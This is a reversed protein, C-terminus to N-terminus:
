IYNLFRDRGRFPIYLIPVTSLTGIFELQSFGVLTSYGNNATINMKYYSFGFASTISYTRMDATTWGTAGVVTHLLTWNTGNNSGLMTWDKPTCSGVSSCGTITYSTVLWSDGGTYVTIYGTTIGNQAFWITSSNRDFLKFAPYTTDNYQTSPTIVVPSPANNATMLPMLSNVDHSYPTTM